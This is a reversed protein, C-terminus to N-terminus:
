SRPWGEVSVSAPLRLKGLSTRRVSGSWHLRAGDHCMACVSFEDNIGVDIIYEGAALYQLDLRFTVGFPGTLGDPLPSGLAENTTGFLTFGLPHLLKMGVMYRGPRLATGHVHLTAFAEPAQITLDVSRVECDRNGHNSFASIGRAKAEVLSSAAPTVFRAAVRRYLELDLANAVQLLTRTSKPLEDRRVSYTQSNLRPIPPAKTIGKGLQTAVDQLWRPLDETTGVVSFRALNELAAELRENMDASSRAAGALVATQLNSVLSFTERAGREISRTLVDELATTAIMGLRSANATRNFYFHSLTRAIPERLVVCSVLDSVTQIAGTVHEWLFHGGVGPHSALWAEVPLRNEASVVRYGEVLDGFVRHVSTGATKWLHVFLLRRDPTRQAIM